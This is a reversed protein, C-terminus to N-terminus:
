ANLKLTPDPYRLKKAETAALTQLMASLRVVHDAARMMDPPLSTKDTKLVICGGRRTSRMGTKLKAGGLECREACNLVKLGRGGGVPGLIINRERELKKRWAAVVTSFRYTKRNLGTIEAMTEWALVLGEPMVDYAQDLKAVDPATPVGADFILSNKAASMM